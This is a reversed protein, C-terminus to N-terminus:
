NESPQEARDIVLVEAPARGSELRLGLQEQIATFLSPGIDTPVTTDPTWALDIDYFGILSTQDIVPRELADSLYQALNAMTLGTGKISRPGWGASGCQKAPKEGESPPACDSAPLPHIKPGNKAQTLFYVPQERQEPHLKLQFRDELVKRLMVRMQDITAQESAAQIDFRDSDFWKPGGIIQFSRVNWAWQVLYQLPTNESTFRHPADFGLHADPGGSKNPKVTAVEFQPQVNQALAGLTFILLALPRKM